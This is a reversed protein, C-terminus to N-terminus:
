LIRSQHQGKYHIIKAEKQTGDFYYNNYIDTPLEKVKLDTVKLQENYAQQEIGCKATREIWNGVFEKATDKIFIVGANFRGHTKRHEYRKLEQPRRVTAGIDFDWDINLGDQLLADADLYLVKSHNQIADAIMLPKFSCKVVGKSKNFDGKQKDFKKGFGLGGLDYVQYKYGLEEVSEVWKQIAGEYKKDAGTIIIM